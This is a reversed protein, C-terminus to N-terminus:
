DRIKKRLIEQLGTKGVHFVYECNEKRNAKKGRHGSGFSFSIQHDNDAIAVAMLMMVVMVFGPPFLVAMVMMVVVMVVLGPPLLMVVMVM